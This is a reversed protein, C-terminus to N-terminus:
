WSTEADGDDDYTRDDNLPFERNYEYDDLDSSTVVHDFTNSESIMNGSTDFLDVLEDRIAELDAIADEYDQRLSESVSPNGKTFYWAVLTDSIDLIAPPVNAATWGTATTQYRRVCYMLIKNKAAENAQDFLGADLVGDRNKDGLRTLRDAGILLTVRAQTSYGAM